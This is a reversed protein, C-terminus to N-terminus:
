TVHVANAAIGRAVPAQRVVVHQTESINQVNIRTGKTHQQPTYTM